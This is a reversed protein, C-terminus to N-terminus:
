DYGFILGMMMVLSMQMCHFNVVSSWNIAEAYFNESFYKSTGFYDVSQNGALSLIRPGVRVSFARCRECWDKRLKSRLIFRKM